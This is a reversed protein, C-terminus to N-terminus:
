PVAARYFRKGANTATGDRVSVVGNSATFNTLTTWGVLNTSYEIHGTLGTSVLLNFNLGNGALPHAAGFNLKLLFANTSYFPM